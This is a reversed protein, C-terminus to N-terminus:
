SFTVTGTINYTGGDKIDVDTLLDFIKKNVTSAGAPVTANLIHQNNCYLKYEERLGSSSIIGGQRATFAKDIYSPYVTSSTMTDTTGPKVYGGLLTLMNASDGNTNMLDFYFREFADEKPNNNIFQINYTTKYSIQTRSEQQVGIVVEKGSDVQTFKIYAVRNTLSANEQLNVIFYVKGVEGDYIQNISTIWSPLEKPLDGEFRVNEITNDPTNGTYSYLYIHAMTDGSKLLPLNYDVSGDEATFVYSLPAAKPEQIFFIDMTDDTESQVLTISGNRVTTETNEALTIKKNNITIWSNNSSVTYSIDVGEKTSMIKLNGFTDSDMTSDLYFSGGVQPVKYRLDYPYFQYEIIKGDQLVKFISKAM